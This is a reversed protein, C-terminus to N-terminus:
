SRCAAAISRGCWRNRAARAALRAVGLRNREREEGVRDVLGLEVAMDGIGVGGDVVQDPGVQVAGRHVGALDLAGARTVAWRDFVLDDPKGVALAVLDEQLGFPSVGEFVIAVADRGAQRAVNLLRDDGQDRPEFVGLDHPVAVGDFVIEGRWRLEPRRELGLRDPVQVEGALDVARRAVLFRGGLPQDGADVRRERDLVLRRENEITRPGVDADQDVVQDGPTDVLRIAHEGAAGFIAQHEAVVVGVQLSM